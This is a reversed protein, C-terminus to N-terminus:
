CASKEEESWMAMSMTNTARRRTTAGTTTTTTSMSTATATGEHRDHGRNDNGIKKDQEKEEVKMVVDRDKRDENLPERQKSKAVAPNGAIKASITVVDATLNITHPEM